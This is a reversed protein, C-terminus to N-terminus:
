ANSTEELMKQVKILTSLKADKLLKKFKATHKSPKRAKKSVKLTLVLTRPTRKISLM